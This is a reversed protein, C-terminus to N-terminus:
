PRAPYVHKEKRIIVLFPTVRRFSKQNLVDPPQVRAVAGRVCIFSHTLSIPTSKLVLIRAFRKHIGPGEDLNV